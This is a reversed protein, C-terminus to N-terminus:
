LADNIHNVHHGDYERDNPDDHQTGMCDSGDGHSLGASHGVEHCATQKWDNLSTINSRDFRLRASYCIGSVLDTCLYDGDGSLEAIFFRADTNETCDPVKNDFMVTQADLNDMAYNAGTHPNDGDYSPSFCYTHERNDPKYGGNPPGDSYPDALAASALGLSSLALLLAARHARSRGRRSGGGLALVFRTGWKTPVDKHRRGHGRSM